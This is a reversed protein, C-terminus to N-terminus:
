RTIAALVLLQPVYAVMEGNDNYMADLYAYPMHLFGNQGWNPGWSNQIVLYGPHYGCIMMEHGGLLQDDATPMSLIGYDRVSESEFNSFVLCAIMVPMKSAIAMQINHLKSHGHTINRFMPYRHLLADSVAQPSPDQGFNVVNGKEDMQYPFFTESCVGLQNIILCGDAADAGEDQVPEQAPNEKKPEQWYIWMRSPEGCGPGYCCKLTNYIGNATCSGLQGQDPSPGCYNLLSLAKPLPAAASFAFHEFLSHRNTLKRRFQALPTYKRSM